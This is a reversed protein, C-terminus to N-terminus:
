VATQFESGYSESFCTNSQDWFSRFLPLWPRFFLGLSVSNLEVKEM